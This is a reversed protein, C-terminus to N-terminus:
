TEQSPAASARSRLAANPQPYRTSAKRAKSRNGIVAWVSHTARSDAPRDHCGM